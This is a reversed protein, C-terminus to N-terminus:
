CAWTRVPLFSWYTVGCAGARHRAGTAARFLGIVAHGRFFGLRVEFVRPYVAVHQLLHQHTLNCLRYQLSLVAELEAESAV